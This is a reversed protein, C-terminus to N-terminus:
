EEWRGREMVGGMERGGWGWREEWRGGEGDRDSRGDRYHVGGIERRGM